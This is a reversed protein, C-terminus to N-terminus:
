FLWFWWFILSYPLRVVLSKFFGCEDLHTPPTSNCLHASLRLSTTHCPSAATTISCATGCECTTSLFWSLYRQLSCDLDWALNCLGPNWCQSSDDGYNWATFVPPPQTPPIFQWIKLPTQIFPRWPSLIYAFGGVRPNVVQAIALLAGTTYPFHTFHISCPLHLVCRWFGPLLMTGERLGGGCM